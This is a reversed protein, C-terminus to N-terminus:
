VFAYVFMAVGGGVFGFLIVSCGLMKGAKARRGSTTTPIGTVKAFKRKARTVGTVKNIWRKGM